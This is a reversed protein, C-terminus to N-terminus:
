SFGGENGIADAQNPTTPKPQRTPISTVGDLNGGLHGPFQPQPVPRADGAYGMLPMPPTLSAIGLQPVPTAFSEPNGSLRQKYGILSNIEQELRMLRDQWHVLKSVQKIAQARDRIAQALRSDIEANALQETRKGGARRKKAEETM